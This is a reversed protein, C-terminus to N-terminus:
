KMVQSGCSLDTCVLNQKSNGNYKINISLMSVATRSQQKWGGQSEVRLCHVYCEATSAERLNEAAALVRFTNDVDASSLTVHM